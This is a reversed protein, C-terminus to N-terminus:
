VGQLETEEGISEPSWTTGDARTRRWNTRRDIRGTRRLRWILGIPYGAMKALDGILRHLPILPLAHLSRATSLGADRDRRFLRLVPRYLYLCGALAGIMLELEKRRMVATVGVLYSLYRVVHRKTFLGAKGDGRAYRYYQRWFSPWEPRVAFGVVADQAFEFRAGGRQLQMDWVVDECYDLWEPYMFGRQVWVARIAVSRSSPLFTEPRVEQYEPLTAAALSRQWAGQVDPRFFGGVVDIGPNEFPRSLLELWREDAVTGADTIAIIESTVRRMALNRGASISAGSSQPITCRCPALWSSLIEFTGDDSGGDVIVIEDPIRSQRSIGALWRDLTARENKVTAILAVSPSRSM